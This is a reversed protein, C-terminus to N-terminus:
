MLAPLFIQSNSFPIQQETPIEKEEFELCCSDHDSGNRLPLSNAKKLDHDFDAPKQEIVKLDGLNQVM